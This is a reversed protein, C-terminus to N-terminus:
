DNKLVKEDGKAFKFFSLAIRRFEDLLPSDPDLTELPFVQRVAPDMHDGRSFSSGRFQTICAPTKAKSPKPSFAYSAKPFFPLPSRHGERFFGLLTKLEAEAAEPAIPDLHQCNKQNWFHSTVNLGAACLILHRLWLSILNKGVSSASLCIVYPDRSERNVPVTGAIQIGDVTLSVDQNECDSYQSLWDEPIAQLKALEDDFMTVGAAGPQLQNTKRLLLYQREASIGQRVGKLMASRLQHRQLHDPVIAESDELAPEEYNKRIGAATELFFRSTNQFFKELQLPSVKHLTEPEQGEPWNAIRSPYGKLIKAGDDPPLQDRVNESELFEAFAGAARYNDESYSFLRTEGQFYRRDFAQLCHRTVFPVPVKESEKGPRFVAQLADHLEALPVAPPMDKGTKSNMGNYFLLLRKKAALLAELFICRDERNRSRELAARQRVPPILNFGLQLDRRPFNAEELGLIAIVPMPISRMPMLSCFTIKGRLFPESIGTPVLLKELLYGALRLDLPETMGQEAEVEQFRDFTNRLAAIERYNGSQQSFLLELLENLLPTWESLTHPALLKERLEFLKLLFGTFNGIKVAEKGEAADFPVIPDDLQEMDNEAVAYGMLLRDLAPEWSFEDFAVGCHTQHDAANVGWHVGLRIVWSRLDDLDAGSIDWRNGLEPNEFLDFVATVEFKGRILELARFLTDACRNQQRLSRDSISFQNQLRSEGGGFVAQIYPEFRGIDPAMVLIDRPQIGEREILRLLQDYLAEVQRLDSYCAHITVSDDPGSEPMPLPEAVGPDPPAADGERVPKRILNLLIDNQLIQLVGPEASGAIRDEFLTEEEVPAFVSRSDDPAEDEISMLYRFFDQGQRDLSALLPNGLPEDPIEDACMRRWAKGASKRLPSNEAWYEQCPNLYYFWVESFRALRRFFDFYVPAMASIGFLTVRRPLKRLEEPTLDKRFFRVFRQDRGTAGESIRRFLRAQWCVDKQSERWAELLDRHYIQYQDFLNALKEALQCAKMTKDEGNTYRALEPFETGGSLLLRFIKWFMWEETMLPGDAPCVSDLVSDVFSNLFPTELNAAVPDALQQNLWVSMGQSQVVVTERAFWDDPRRDLYVNQRFHGALERPSNSVILHFAM